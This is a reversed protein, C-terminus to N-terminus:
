AIKLTFRVSYILETIKMIWREKAIKVTDRMDKKSDICQSKLQENKGKTNRARFILENRRKFSLRLM